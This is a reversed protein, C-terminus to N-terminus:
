TWRDSTGRVKADPDMLYKTIQTLHHKEMDIVEELLPEEGLIDRCADYFILTSRELDYAMELADRSSSITDAVAIPDRDGRFVETWSVSRLYEREDDTLERRQDADLARSLEDLKAEHLKEDDALRNFLGRLESDDRNKDALKQYVENGMRETEVAFALAGQITLDEIM